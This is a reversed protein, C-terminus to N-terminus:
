LRAVFGGEVISAMQPALCEPADGASFSFLASFPSAAIKGKEKKSKAGYFKRMAFPFM